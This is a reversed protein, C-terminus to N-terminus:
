NTDFNLVDPTISEGDGHVSVDVGVDSNVCIVYEGDRVGTFVYNGDGTGVASHLLKAGRGCTGGEKILTVILGNWGQGNSTITITAQAWVGGGFVAALLAASCAARFM